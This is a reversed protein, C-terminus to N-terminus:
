RIRPGQFRAPIAEVLPVSRKRVSAHSGVSGFEFTDTIAMRTARTATTSTATSIRPDRNPRRNFATPLLARLAKRIPMGVLRVQERREREAPAQGPQGPADLGRADVVLQDRRHRAPPPEQPDQHDEQGPEPRRPDRRDGQEERRDRHAAGLELEAEVQVRRQGAHDLPDQDPRGGPRPQCCTRDPRRAAPPPAAGPRSRERVSRPSPTPTSGLRRPSRPDSISAVSAEITAAAVGRMKATTPSVMVSRAPTTLRESSPLM